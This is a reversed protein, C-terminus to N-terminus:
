GDVVRLGGYQERKLVVYALCVLGILMEDWESM